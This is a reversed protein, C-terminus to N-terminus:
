LIRDARFVLAISPKRERIQKHKNRTSLWATLHMPFVIYANYNITPLQVFLQIGSLPVHVDCKVYWLQQLRVIGGPRDKTMSKEMAIWFCSLVQMFNDLKEKIYLKQIQVDDYYM